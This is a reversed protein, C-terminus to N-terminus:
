HVEARRLRGSRTRVGRGAAVLEIQVIEGVIEFYM